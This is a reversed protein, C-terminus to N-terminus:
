SNEKRAGVCGIAMHKSVASFEIRLNKVFLTGLCRNRSLAIPFKKRMVDLAVNPRRDFFPPLLFQLFHFYGTLRTVNRVLVHPVKGLQFCVNEDAQHKFVYLISRIVKHDGITCTKM